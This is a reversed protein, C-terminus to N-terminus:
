FESNVSMGYKESLGAIAQERMNQLNDYTKDSTKKAKHVDYLNKGILGVLGAVVAIGTYKGAKSNVFKETPKYIKDQIFKAGPMNNLKDKFRSYFHDVGKGNEINFLKNLGKNGYVIGVQGIAVGGVVSGAMTM